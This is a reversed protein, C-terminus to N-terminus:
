YKLQGITQKGMLETLVKVVQECLEVELEGFRELIPADLDLVGFIIEEGNVESQVMLPIVLESRSREDCAIHGPFAHVDPVVITEQREAATGCVGRGFPIDVCATRGVFPGLLLLQKEMGDIIVPTGSVLYFGAWNLEPLVEMLWAATNSLLAPTATVGEMLAKYDAILAENTLHSLSNSEIINMKLFWTRRNVVVGHM